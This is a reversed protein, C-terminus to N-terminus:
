LMNIKKKNTKAQLSNVAKVTNTIAVVSDKVFVNVPAEAISIGNNLTDVVDSLITTQIKNKNADLVKNALWINEKNQLKVTKNINSSFAPLVHKKYNKSKTATTFDNKEVANNKTTPLTYIGFIILLIAAAWIIPLWYKKKNNKQPLQQEINNWVFADNFYIGNPLANLEKLKKFNNEQM